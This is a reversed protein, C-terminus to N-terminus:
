FELFGRGGMTKYLSDSLFKSLKFSIKEITSQEAAPEIAGIKVLINELREQTEVYFEFPSTPTNLLTNAQDIAAQLEQADQWDLTSMDIDTATELLTQKIHRTERVEMFQSYKPNSHVDFGQSSIMLDTALNIVFGNRGTSEHHQGYFYWTTDPILGTSADVSRDPSIHNHTPDSCNPSTNQQVYDSPFTEGIPCSYAGMSSSDLHILGDANYQDWSKVFSYMPTGYEVINYVGVGSDILAQINADRNLQSQYYTYTRSRLYDYDEGVFHKEALAPYDESPVLSWMGTCNKLLSDIVGEIAADVISLVLSNPLFRLAINILYGAYGDVLSPFLESYLMEDATNLDGKYLDSVLKTGNTAPIIYIVKELSDNVEPYLEFLANAVTGGLSVFVINVKDSGTQNKVMEVYDKLEEAISLTNGFSNYAFFYLNEEGAMNTYANLPMTRYVFQRGEYDMEAVSCNYKVVEVNNIPNGELDCANDYLLDNVVDKLADTFGNDRRTVLMKLLPLALKSIISNADVSLPWAMVENGNDDYMQNGNDDLLRVDSQGIGPVLISPIVEEAEPVFQSFVESNPQAVIAKPEDKELPQTAEEIAEGQQAPSQVRPVFVEQESDIGAYIFSATLVFSIVLIFATTKALVKRM